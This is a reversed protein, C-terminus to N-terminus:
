DGMKDTLDDIESTDIKNATMFKLMTSTSETFSALLKPTKSLIYIFTVGGLMKEFPNSDDNEFKEKAEEALKITAVLTVGGVVYHPIGEQFKQKSQETMVVGSTMKQDIKDQINRSNSIVEDLNSKGTLEGNELKEATQKALLAEEKLGLADAFAAQAKSYETLTLNFSIVEKTDSMLKDMGEVMDSMLTDMGGGCGTLVLTATIIATIKKLINKM